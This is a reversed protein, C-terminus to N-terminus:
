FTMKKNNYLIFFIKKKVVVELRVTNHIEADKDRLLVECQRKAGWYVGPLNEYKAHDLGKQPKPPSDELCKAWGMSKAVEASCTSWLTEGNTGRSPSMIYGEKPCNNHTSDHHMGISCIM